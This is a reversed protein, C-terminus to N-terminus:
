SEQINYLRVANGGFIMSKEAASIQLAGISEKMKPMSSILHPYDSGALLQSAGAFEVALRLARPDFNVTDYFFAKLYDSPHRDINV